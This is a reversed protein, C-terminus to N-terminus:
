KRLKYYKLAITPEKSVFEEFESVWEFSKCKFIQKPEYKTFNNLKFEFEEKKSNLYLELNRWWELYDFEEINTLLKNTINILNSTKSLSTSNPILQNNEEKM